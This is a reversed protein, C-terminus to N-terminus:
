FKDKLESIIQNIIDESIIDDTDLIVNPDTPDTPDSPKSPPPMIPLMPKSITNAKDQFDKYVEDKNSDNYTHIQIKNNTNGWYDQDATANTLDNEHHYIHVNDFQIQNNDDVYGVFKGNAMTGNITTGKDFYMYINKFNASWDTRGGFGGFTGYQLQIKEANNIAINNFTGNSAEGFFGGIYSYQPLNGKYDINGISKIKINSLEMNYLYGAFGGISFASSSSQSTNNIFIGDIKDIVVKDITLKPGPGGLLMSSGLFGGIELYSSTINNSSTYMINGISGIHINSIVGDLHGAFGGIHFYDNVHSYINIDGINKIYINNINGSGFGVFGGYQREGDGNNLCNITIDGVDLFINKINGGLLMAAFGGINGTANTVDIEKIGELTVNSINAQEEEYASWMGTFGGVVGINTASIKDINKLYINDITSNRSYGVFGGISGDQHTNNSYKIEGNMYDININKFTAGNTTGFIGISDLSSNSTINMNINELTYGQGDFTKNFADDLQNSWDYDKGIISGVIMSTCGLGDICYNAYNKGQNGNFDIDNTLRYESATDRFVGDKNENWGKAFHWWDVDSGIGVYKVNNFNDKNHHVIIPRGHQDQANNYSKMEYNFNKFSTPNYYYGTANLYLSGNNKATIALKEIDKFTAIDAHVENGVLHINAKKDKDFATVQNFTKDKTNLYGQMLIKNGILLVDNANITGMNVVNGAKHPKFVPSFTAGQAKFKDFDEPKLSSTSAVFRNANITGTKTIIVGNPNILFVNNGGANLVGEITSKDTGHAINLYNHQGDGKFNVQADKGI